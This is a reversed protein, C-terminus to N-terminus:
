NCLAPREMHDFAFGPGDLHDNAFPLLSMQPDILPGRPGLFASIQLIVQGIETFSFLSPGIGHNHIKWFSVEM